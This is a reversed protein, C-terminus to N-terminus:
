RGEIPTTQATGTSQSDLKAAETAANEVAKLQESRQAVKDGIVPVELRPDGTAVPHRFFHYVLYAILAALGILVIIPRSASVRREFSEIMDKFQDGLWYGLFFLLSVGPVAYLGDALVFLSFPIRTVGAMIYIPSRITPLLRAFLLVWVGYRHFNGEIKVKKDEPIIRKVWRSELLRTGWIRGIGYLFGDGIIVGLICLPLMLYWHLRVKPEPQPPVINPSENIAVWPLNAPFPLFPDVALIAAVQAPSDDRDARNHGCSIGAVVIPLEEPFPAGLGTALISFFVTGYIGIAARELM